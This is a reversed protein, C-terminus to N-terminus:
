LKSQQGGTESGYKETLFLAIEEAVERPKEQVVMHGGGPIKVNSANKPRRWLTTRAVEPGGVLNSAEDMGGMIWRLEIRDDLTPLLEWGENMTRRETFESAEWTPHCKLHVEGTNLDEHLGHEIYADLAAPHFAQFLPTNLFAKRAEQRSAWSSRRGLTSSVIAPKRESNNNSPPFLTTEMLILSSFLAPYSIGCLATADGGLSHGVAVVTRDPSFGHKIRAQAISPPLRPLEMPIDEGYTQVGNPLHYILFNALDRGYDSRDPLKPVHSGNLLAADGHNIAELSWLEEIHITSTSAETIEVLHKFVPEWTEKHFGIPHTFVMTVGKKGVWNGSDKNRRIRLVTGWLGETAVRLGVATDPFRKEAELKEWIMTQATESLWKKREGKDKFSDVPPIQIQGPPAPARPFAASLTHVSLSHTPTFQVTRTPISAQPAILSPPALLPALKRRPNVTREGKLPGIPPLFHGKNSPPNM